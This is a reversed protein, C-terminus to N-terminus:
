DKPMKSQSSHVRDGYVYKLATWIRYYDSFTNQAIHRGTSCVILPPIPSQIDKRNYRKIISICEETTGQHYTFPLVDCIFHLREPLIGTIFIDSFRFPNNDTFGEQVILNRTKSDMLYGFSSCYRPYLDKSYEKYSVYYPGMSTNREPKGPQFAWGFLFTYADPNLHALFLSDLSSNYLHRNQFQDPQTKLERVLEHLLFPNIFLDDETKFTFTANPCYRELWRYAYLEKLTMSNDDTTLYLLDQENQAENSLDKFLNNGRQYGVVFLRQSHVNFMHSMSGWTERISQRELFHSGSSIILNLVDIDNYACLQINHLIPSSGSIAHLYAIEEAPDRFTRSSSNLAYWGIYFILLASLFLFTRDKCSRRM